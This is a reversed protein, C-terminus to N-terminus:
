LSALYEGNWKHFRIVKQFPLGIEYGYAVPFGTDIIFESINDNDIDKYYVLGTAEVRAYKEIEEAQMYEDPSTQIISRFASDKWEIMEYIHMGQSAAGAWFTIEPIENRNGDNIFVVSYTDVGVEWGPQRYLIRYLGNNYGLIYFYSGAYFPIQIGLDPINDNDLDTLVLDIGRNDHVVNLADVGNVAFHFQYENARIQKRFKQRVLHELDPEDDVVLIKALM